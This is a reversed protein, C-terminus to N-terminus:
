AAAEYLQLEAWCVEPVLFTHDHKRNWVSSFERGSRSHEWGGSSASIVEQFSTETAPVLEFTFEFLHPLKWYRKPKAGAEPSFHSLALVIRAAIAQATDQNECDAFTRLFLKV